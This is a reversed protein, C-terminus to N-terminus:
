FPAKKKPLEPVAFANDDLKEPKIEVAVSTMSFQPSEIISKLPLSKSAATFAAWCGTKHKKYAAWDIAYKTNFYFTYKLGNKTKIEIGSCKVGLVEEQTKLVTTEIVPDLDVSVDMWYLTDYPVFKSYLKNETKSFLQYQVTKGNLESKYSGGKIFYDMQDGMMEAMQKVDTEVAGGKFTNKYTIRGEFYQGTAVFPVVCLAVVCFITRKMM